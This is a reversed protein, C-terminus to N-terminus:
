RNPSSGTKLQALRARASAAQAGSPQLELYRLLAARTESDQGLRDSAMALSLYFDAELPSLAIARRFHEAASAADGTKLLALGFNYETVEDDPFLRSAETYQEVAQEWQGLLGYARAYNFHFSWTEANLAIAREFYALAEAPRGLRVLVQGCNNLSEADQPDHEVARRYGALATEFDASQYELRAKQQLDPAYAQDPPASGKSALDTAVAGAVSPVVGDRQCVAGAVAAQGNRLDLLALIM